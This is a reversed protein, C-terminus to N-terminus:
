WNPSGLLCVTALNRPGASARYQSIRFILTCELAKEKLEMKTQPMRLIGAM